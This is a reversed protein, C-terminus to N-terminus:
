ESRWNREKKGDSIQNVDVTNNATLYMGYPSYLNRCLSYFIFPDFENGTIEGLIVGLITGDDELLGSSALTGNCTTGNGTMVALLGCVRDFEM